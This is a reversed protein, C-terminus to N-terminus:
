RSYRACPMVQLTLLDHHAKEWAVINGQNVEQLRRCVRVGSCVFHMVNYVVDYVHSQDHFTHHQPCRPSALDAIGRSVYRSNNPSEVILNRRFKWIFMLTPSESLPRCAFMGMVM